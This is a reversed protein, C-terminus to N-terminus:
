NSKRQHVIQDLKNKNDRLFDHQFYWKSTIAFLSRKYRHRGKSLPVQFIWLFIQIEKKVKLKEKNCHWITVRIATYFNAINTTDLQYFLSKSSASCFGPKKRITFGKMSM